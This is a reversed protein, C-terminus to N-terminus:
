CKQANREIVLRKRPVPWKSVLTGLIVPLVVLDFTGWIYILQTESDCMETRKARGGVTKSNPVTTMSICGIVGVMGYVSCPWLYRIYFYTNTTDTRGLNPRRDATTSIVFSRFHGKWSRSSKAILPLSPVSVLGVSTWETWKALAVWKRPLQCKIIGGNVLINFM